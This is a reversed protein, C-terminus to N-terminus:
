KQSLKLCRIDTRDFPLEEKVINIETECEGVNVGYEKLFEELGDREYALGEVRYNMPIVVRPEIKNIISVIQKANVVEGGGVPVFLVDPSGVFDYEEVTLDRDLNNLTVFMVGDISFSYLLTKKHPEVTVANVPISKVIITVGKVAYEGAGDIVFVGTKKDIKSEVEPGLLSKKRSLLVVEEGSLSPNELGSDESMMDTILRLGKKTILFTNNGYWSIQM